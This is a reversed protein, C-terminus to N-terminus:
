TYIKNLKGKELRNVTLDVRKPEEKVNINKYDEVGTINFSFITHGIMKANTSPAYYTNTSINLLDISITAYETKTFVFPPSNIANNVWTTTVTLPVQIVSMIVSGSNGNSSYNYSSTFPLGTLQIQFIRNDSLAATEATAGTKAGACWSLSINFKEYRDYLEGLLARMNINYWTLSSRNQAVKGTATAVTLGYYDAVTDSSNIDYSKLTLDVSEM